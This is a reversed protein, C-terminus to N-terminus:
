LGLPAEAIQYMPRLLLPKPSQPIELTRSSPTLVVVVQAELALRLTQQTGSKPLFFVMCIYLQANVCVMLM